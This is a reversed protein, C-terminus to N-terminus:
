TPVRKANPAVRKANTSKKRQHQQEGMPAM